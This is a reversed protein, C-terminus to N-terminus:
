LTPDIIKSFSEYVKLSLDVTFEFTTSPIHNIPKFDDTWM